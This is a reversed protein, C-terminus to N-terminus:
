GLGIQTVTIWAVWKAAPLADERRKQIYIISLCTSRLNTRMADHRRDNKVTHFNGAVVFLVRILINYRYEFRNFYRDTRSRECDYLYTV